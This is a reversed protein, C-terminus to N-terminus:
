TGAKLYVQQHTVGLRRHPYSNAIVPFLASAASPVLRLLTSLTQHVIGHVSELTVGVGVGGGGSGTAMTSEDIDVMAMNKSAAVAVAAADDDSDGHM